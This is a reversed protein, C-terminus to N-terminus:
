TRLAAHHGRDVRRCHVLAASPEHEPAADRDDVLAPAFHPPVSKTIGARCGSPTKSWGQYVGGDTLADFHGAPDRRFSIFIPDSSREAPRTALHRDLRRLLHPGVPVDRM